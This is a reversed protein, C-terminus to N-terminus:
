HHHGHLSHGAFVDPGLKLRSNTGAPWGTIGHEAILSDTYGWRLSHRVTRGQHQGGINRERSIHSEAFGM